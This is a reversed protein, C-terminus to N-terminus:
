RWAVRNQLFVAMVGYFDRAPADRAMEIAPHAEGDLEVTDEPYREGLIARVLDYDEPSFELLVKAM